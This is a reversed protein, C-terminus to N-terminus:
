YQTQLRKSARFSKGSSLVKINSVPTCQSAFFHNLLDPKQNFDAVADNHVLLPHHILPVKTGKYFLKLIPWCTKASTNPNNLKKSLHDYCEDKRIFVM